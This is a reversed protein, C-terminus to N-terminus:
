DVEGHIQEKEIAHRIVSTVLEADQESQTTFVVRYAPAPVDVEWVPLLVVDRQVDSWLNALIDYDWQGAHSNDLLVFRRKMEETWGHVREVPATRHGMEKLAVLRMNGGLVTGHEDVVLPRALLMEPFQQISNKLADLKNRKIERPNDPHMRLADINVTEM